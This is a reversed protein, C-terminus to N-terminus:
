KGNIIWIQKVCSGFIKPIRGYMEAIYKALESENLIENMCKKVMAKEDMVDNFKFKCPLYTRNDTKLDVKIQIEPQDNYSANFVYFNYNKVFDFDM